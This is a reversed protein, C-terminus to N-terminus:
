FGKVVACWVETWGEERAGHVPAQSKPLMGAFWGSSPCGLRARKGGVAETPWLLLGDVARRVM